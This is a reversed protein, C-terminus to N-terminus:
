SSDPSPSSSNKLVSSVPARESRSSDSSSSYSSSSSSSSITLISESSYRFTSTFFYAIFWLGPETGLLVSKPEAMQRFSGNEARKQLRGASLRRTASACIQSQEQHPKGNELLAPFHSSTKGFAFSRCIEWILSSDQRCQQWHRPPSKGRRKM